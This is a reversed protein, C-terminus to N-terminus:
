SETVTKLGTIKKDIMEIRDQLIKKHEELIRIEDELPLAVPWSCGCDCLANMQSVQKGTSVHCM